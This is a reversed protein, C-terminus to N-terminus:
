KRSRRATSRAETAVGLLCRAPRSEEVARQRSRLDSVGVQALVYLAV